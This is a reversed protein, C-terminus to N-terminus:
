EAADVVGLRRTVYMVEGMVILMLSNPTVAIRATTVCMGWEMVTPTRRIRTAPGLERAPLPVIMTVKVYWERAALGPVAVAPMMDTQRIPATTVCMAWGTVMRMKRIKAAGVMQPVALLAILM